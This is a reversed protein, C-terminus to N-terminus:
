ELRNYQTFQTPIIAGKIGRKDVLKLSGIQCDAACTKKLLHTLPCFLYDFTLDDNADPMQQREIVVIILSFLDIVSM